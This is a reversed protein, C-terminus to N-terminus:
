AHRSTMIGRLALLGFVPGPALLLFVYQAGLPQVAFTLMRERNFGADVTMLKQFSRLLLGAGVVLVVALAVEAMVLGSRLRARASGATSRQGGEKLSVTVVEERLHLLPAMGFILGTLVSISLTFLM